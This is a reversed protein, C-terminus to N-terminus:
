NFDLFLAAHDSVEDPLVTFQLLEIDLSTFIYDAFKEPKTYFSTRTTQIGFTKVLNNMGKEVIAISETDPRLNFDGCLVKPTQITDMFDRIRKSQELRDPTDTKGMGNWLGHVNLVSYIKSDKRFEIWQMNRSHHGDTGDSTTNSHIIIEGEGLVDIDQKIFLAIGYIGNIVPRFFAQHNPLLEKLESFIDFHVNPYHSDLKNKAGEYVEQFCFIDIDQNKKIFEIFPNGVQQPKAM